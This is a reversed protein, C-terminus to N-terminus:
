SQRHTQLAKCLKDFGSSLSLDVWHWPLLRDPVECSELKAPILFIAGEPQHEAEDLVRVIEKQVYGRKQSRSSLFVIVATARKIAKPIEINWKQGPLLKQEDLWTNFGREELLAAYKRVHEKDESAHCLFVLSKTTPASAASGDATPAPEFDAEIQEFANPGLSSQIQKAIELWATDLDGNGVWYYLFESVLIPKLGVSRGAELADQAGLQLRPSTWKRVLIADLFERQKRRIHELERDSIPM